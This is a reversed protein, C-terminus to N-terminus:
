RALLSEVQKSVVDLADSPEARGALVEAMAQSIAADITSKGLDISSKLRLWCSKGTPPHVDISARNM